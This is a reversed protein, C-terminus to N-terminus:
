ARAGAISPRKGRASRKLMSTASAISGLVPLDLAEALDDISRVRRNSLELLLALGVVATIAALGWRQRMMRNVRGM